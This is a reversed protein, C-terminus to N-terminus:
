KYSPIIYRMGLMILQPYKKMVKLMKSVNVDPSFIMLNHSNYIKLVPEYKSGQLAKTVIKKGYEILYMNEKRLKVTAEFTEEKNFANKHFFIIMKSHNFWNLCEKAFIIELPNYDVEKKHEAELPKTCLDIIPANKKENIYIPQVFRM